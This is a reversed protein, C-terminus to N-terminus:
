SKGPARHCTLCRTNASFAIPAGGKRKKGDHCKACGDGNIHPVEMGVPSAASRPFLAPHCDDCSLGMYRVTKNSSNVALHKLHSFAVPDMRNMTIIVEVVPMHCVKCNNIAEAATKRRPGITRGDHCAGCARGQSIENMTVLLVMTKDAHCQKCAYGAGKAGHTAHSFLVPGPSNVPYAIFGGDKDAARSSYQPWAAALVLFIAAFAGHNYRSFPIM